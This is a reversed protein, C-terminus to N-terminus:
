HLAVLSNIKWANVLIVIRDNQFVHEFELIPLLLYGWYFTGVNNNADARVICPKGLRGCGFQVSRACKIKEKRNRYKFFDRVLIGYIRYIRNMSDPQIRAWFNDLNEQSCWNSVLSTCTPNTLCLAHKTGIVETIKGAVMGRTALGDKDVDKLHAIPWWTATHIRMQSKM